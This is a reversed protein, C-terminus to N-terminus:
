RIESAPILVDKYTDFHELVMGTGNAVCNLPVDARVAKLGTSREIMKDLGKLMAGGGTLMIGNDLIDASLEPPITELTAIIADIMAVISEYLAEAVQFNTVEITRPLGTLVDRGNVMMYEQITKNDVYAYGITKKIEEATREGIYLDATHKIYSIIAQDLADGAIRLSTSKAIGGLSIVAVETTGGGIDVVMSGVPDLVPLGAGIASAMPEEILYTGRESSGSELAVEVLARKEVDTIGYPACIILDPKIVSFRAGMVKRIFHQLLAKTTTYGSIVGDKIPREVLINEPTRGMMEKAEQGVAVIHNNDKDIAVVSPENIVIGSGRVYVLINATGLDIGLGKKMM